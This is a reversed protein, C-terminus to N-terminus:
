NFHEFKMENKDDESPVLYPRLKLAGCLRFYTDLSLSKIDGSFIRSITSQAVGSEKALRYNTMNLENARDRLYKITIQKAQDITIKPIM